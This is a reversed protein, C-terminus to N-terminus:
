LPVSLLATGDLVAGGFGDCLDELGAAGDRKDAGSFLLADAGNQALDRLRQV